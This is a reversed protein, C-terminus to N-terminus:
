NSRRGCGQTNQAPPSPSIIKCKDMKVKLSFKALVRKGEIEVDKYCKIRDLKNIYDSSHVFRHRQQDVVRVKMEQDAPISLNELMKASLDEELKERFAAMFKSEEDDSHPLLVM